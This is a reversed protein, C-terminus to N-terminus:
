ALWLLWWRRKKSAKGIQKQYSLGGASAGIRTGRPGRSIRAGKVGASVGVGSKSLNVKINKGLKISKRFSIPM